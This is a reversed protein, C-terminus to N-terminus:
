PSAEGSYHHKGLPVVTSAQPGKEGEGEAVVLRVEDGLELTTFANGAVSNAHFYVDVEEPTRVFGYREDRFIQTVKAHAPAAHRKVEGRRRRAYDEVQRAAADFTDRIAVYVDEHAHDHRRERGVAITKEPLRIELRVSYLNGKHHQQHPAEVTVRCSTISPHFRELEAVKERIRREIAESSSLGRFTIQLSQQM